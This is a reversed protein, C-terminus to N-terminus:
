RRTWAAKMEADVRKRIEEAPFGTEDAQRQVWANIQFESAGLEILRVATKRILDNMSM